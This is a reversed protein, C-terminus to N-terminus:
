IEGNEEKREMTKNTPLSFHLMYKDQSLNDKMADRYYSRLTELVVDRYKEKKYKSMIIPNDEYGNVYAEIQYFTVKKNNEEGEVTTYRFVSDEYPIEFEEDQSILRFM